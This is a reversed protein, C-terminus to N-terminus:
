DGNEAYFARAYDRAAAAPDAAALVGSAVAVLAAGAARLAGVHAPLIGGIACVPLGLEARAQGLLAYPAPPAGPKTPSLHMSGFALYDAGAAAAARAREISAYCSAGILARAGLAARATAVAADDRGLHVGDAGVAAALAVDDNVILLAGARHCAARLATAEALRRAADASKDRYQVLRAGGALAREAAAVVGGHPAALAADTLLYLGRLGPAM